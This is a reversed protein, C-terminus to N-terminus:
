FLIYHQYEVCVPGTGLDSHTVAGASLYHFHPFVTRYFNKNTESEKAVNKVVRHFSKKFVNRMPNVNKIITFWGKFVLFFESYAWRASSDGYKAIRPSHPPLFKRGISIFNLVCTSVLFAHVSRWVTDPGFTTSRVWYRRNWYYKSSDSVWYGCLSVGLGSLSLEMTLLLYFIYKSICQIMFQDDFM